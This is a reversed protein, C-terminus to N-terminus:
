TRPAAPSPARVYATVRIGPVLAATSEALQLVVELIKTDNREVPDDTRVNKRGMRHGIEAVTGALHKDPEANLVVYAAAGLMVKAVDREDVDMRVKLVRLDGLVLLPDTGQTNYYEGVRTKVQLVTADIPARVHLRELSARAQDRRALAAHAQADAIAIDERRSGNIGALRRADAAEFAAHDAEAQRRARDQEDGTVAGTAAVRDTREAVKASSLARAKAAEADAVLARLDEARLGRLTRALTAQAVALESEAAALAAREPDDDLELLTAGAAVRDGEKVLIQAIRGPVAAGIRTERDAPEVIGNGAIYGPQALIERLDASGSGAVPRRAAVADSPRVENTPGAVVNKLLLAALAAVVLAGSALAFSPRKIV